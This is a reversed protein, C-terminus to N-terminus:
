RNVSTILDEIEQRLKDDEEQRKQLFAQMDALVLAKQRVLQESEIKQRRYACMREWVHLEVGEPMNSGKDLDALAAELSAKAQNTQRATSPRESFPNGSSADYIPTDAAARGRQGRCDIVTCGKM